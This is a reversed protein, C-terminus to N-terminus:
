ADTIESNDYRQFEAHDAHHPTEDLFCKTCLDVGCVACKWRIGCIEGVVTCGTGRCSVGPHRVGTVSNDM